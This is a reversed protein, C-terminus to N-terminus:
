PAGDGSAPLAIVSAGAGGVGQLSLTADPMTAEGAPRLAGPLYRKLELAPRVVFHWSLV